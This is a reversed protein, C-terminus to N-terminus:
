RGMMPLKGMPMGGAPMKSINVAPAGAPSGASGGTSMLPLALLVCCILCVAIGIIGWIGTLGEFIAKVLDDLGASTQKASQSIDVIAENLVSDKQMASTIADAVGKATISQLINQDMNFDYEGPNRYQPDCTMWLGGANIDQNNIAKAFIEQVTSSSMTSSIVTNSRNIVDNTAEASNAFTPALFGSKQEAEQKIKEAMKNQLETALAQQNQVTLTGTATVTSSAGQSVNVRCGNFVAGSLNVSQKSGGTASVTQNLSSMFNSTVSTMFENTVSSKTKSQNGGM